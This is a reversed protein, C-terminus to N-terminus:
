TAGIQSNVNSRDPREGHVSVRLSLYSWMGDQHRDDGRMRAEELHTGRM